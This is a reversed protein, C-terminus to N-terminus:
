GDKLANLLQVASSKWSWNSKVYNVKREISHYKEVKYYNEYIDLMKKSYEEVDYDYFYPDEIHKFNGFCNLLGWEQELYPISQKLSIMPKPQIFVGARKSLVENTPPIDGTVCLSGCASCDLLPMGFGASRMVNLTVHSQSYLQRLLPSPWRESVYEIVSGQMQFEKIRKLLISDKKQPNTDKILLRVNKNGAFALHFAQLSLDLGSRVNSSNIHMFTFREFRDHSPYWEKTNCGAYVTKVDTRGYKHWLETIQKSLGFIRQGRGGEFVFLPLSSNEWVHIVFPPKDKYKFNVGLGECTGVFDADDPDAYCNIKKLAENMQICVESMSGHNEPYNESDTTQRPDLDLCHIKM